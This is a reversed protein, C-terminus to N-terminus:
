ESEKKMLGKNLEPITQLLSQYSGKKEVSTIFQEPMTQMTKGLEHMRLSQHLSLEKQSVKDSKTLVLSFAIHRAYLRNTFDLDSQQPKLKSDILVFVHSLNERKLM